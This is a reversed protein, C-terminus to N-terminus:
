SSSSRFFKQFLIRRILPTWCFVTMIYDISRFIQEFAFTLKTSCHHTLTAYRLIFYDHATRFLFIKDYDCILFSSVFFDNRFSFTAYTWRIMNAWKTMLKCIFFSSLSKYIAILAILLEAPCTLCWPTYVLTPEVSHLRAKFIFFIEVTM